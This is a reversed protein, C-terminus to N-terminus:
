GLSSISECRQKSVPLDRRTQLIQFYKQSHPRGTFPNTDSDEAVAAQKATTQRRKFGALPSNAAPEGDDYGNSADQEYHHALYPNYVPKKDGQESERKTKKRQSDDTDSSLRKVGSVAKYGNEEM